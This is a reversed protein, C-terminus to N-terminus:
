YLQSEFNDKNISLYVAFAEDFSSSSFVYARVDHLSDPYVGFIQVVYSSKGSFGNPIQNLSAWWVVLGSRDNFTSVTRTAFFHNKM